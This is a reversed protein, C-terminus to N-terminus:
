FISNQHRKLQLIVITDDEVINIFFVLAPSYQRLCEDSNDQNIHKLNFYSYNYRSNSLITLMIINNLIKRNM